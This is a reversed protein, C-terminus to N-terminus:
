WTILLIELPIRNKINNNPNKELACSIPTELTIKTSPVNSVETEDIVYSRQAVLGMVKFMTSSFKEEVESVTEFTVRPIVPTFEVTRVSNVIEDVIVKDPM